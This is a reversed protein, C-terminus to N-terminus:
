RKMALLATFAASLLALVGAIIVGVLQWRGKQDEAQRAELAKRVEQFSSASLNIAQELLAIRVLLSDNGNSGRIIRTLNSVERAVAEQARQLDAISAAQTQGNNMVTQLMNLMGTLGEPTTTKNDPAM